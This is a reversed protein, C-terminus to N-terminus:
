YGLFPDFIIHSKKIGEAKLKKEVAKIAAQTGSVYYFAQNGYQKAQKLYAQETDSITKVYDIEFTSVQNIVENLDKEYMYYDAAYIIRVDRKSHKLSLLLARIPTIGVGMAIMVLPSTADRVKFWGFPGRMKVKEGPKLNLFVKKFSSMQKGTRTGLKIVGEEPISAISFARYKKGEIHHTPVSFIGHTGPIWTINEDGKLTVEYYDDHLNEVKILEVERTQFLGKFDSLKM